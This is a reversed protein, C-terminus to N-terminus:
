QSGGHSSDFFRGYIICCPFFTCNNKVNEYISIEELTNHLLQHNIKMVARSKIM